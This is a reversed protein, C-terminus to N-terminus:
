KLALQVPSEGGSVDSYVKVEHAVGDGSQVDMYMYSFPMSQRM